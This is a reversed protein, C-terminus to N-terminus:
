APPSPPPSTIVPESIARHISAASSHPAAPQAGQHHEWSPQGQGCCCLLSGIPVEERVAAKAAQRSLPTPATALPAAVKWEEQWRPCTPTDASHGGECNVCRARCTTAAPHQRGYRMGAGARQSAESVHGFRRFQRCQLPRSRAHRLWM